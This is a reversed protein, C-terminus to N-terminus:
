PTYIRTMKIVSGDKVEITTNYQSFAYFFETEEVLFDEASFPELTNDMEDYFEFGSAVPLTALGIEYYAKTDSAGTIFYYSGDKTTFDFGGVEFGGNVIINGFPTTELSTITITEDLIEISDNLTLNEIDKAHYLDFDYITVVVQINGNEDTYFADEELFVSYTGDVLNTINITSDLPKIIDSICEDETDEAQTNQIESDSNLETENFINNNSTQPETESDSAPTTNCGIM